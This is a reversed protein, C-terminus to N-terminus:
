ASAAPPPTASGPPLTPYTKLRDRPRQPPFGRRRGAPRNFHDEHAEPLDKRRCPGFGHAEDGDEREAQEGDAAATRRRGSRDIRGFLLFAGFGAAGGAPVPGAEQS